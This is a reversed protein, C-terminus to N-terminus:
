TVNSRLLPTTSKYDGFLCSWFSSNRFIRSEKCGRQLKNQNTHRLVEDGLNLQQVICNFFVYFTVRTSRCVLSIADIWACLNVRFYIAILGSHITPSWRTIRQIYLWTFLKKSLFSLNWKEFTKVLDLFQTNPRNRCLINDLRFYSHLQIHNCPFKSCILQCRWKTYWIRYLRNYHYSVM